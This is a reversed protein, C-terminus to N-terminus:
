EAQAVHLTLLLLVDEDTPTIGRVWVLIVEGDAVGINPIEFGTQGDHFSLSSDIRTGDSSLTPQWALAFFNSAITAQGGEEVTICPSAITGTTLAGEICDAQARSLPVYWTEPNASARILELGQNELSQWVAQEGAPLHFLRAACVVARVNTDAPQENTDGAPAPPQPAPSAVNGTRIDWIMEKLRALTSNVAQGVQSFAVPGGGLGIAGALVVALALVAAIRRTRHMM